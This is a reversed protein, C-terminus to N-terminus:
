IEFTMKRHFELNETGLQLDLILVYILNTKSLFMHKFISLLQFILLLNIIM